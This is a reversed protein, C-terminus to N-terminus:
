GFDGVAVPQPAAAVPPAVTVSGTSPPTSAAPKSAQPAAGDLSAPRDVWGIISFVPKYNTSQASKIPMVKAIKVVPLKGTKSESASTYADHLEDMAEIVCAASSGLVRPSPNGGNTEKNLLLDVEFGQKFALKGESNVDGPRAPIAEKGLVVLLRVPGQATYNIWGVRINAMDVVMQAENTIEAVESFYTGDPAQKRDPRFFRGAKADYKVFPKIEGGTSGTSLGLAM